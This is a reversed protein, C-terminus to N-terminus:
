FGEAGYPKGKTEFLARGESIRDQDTTQNLYEVAAIHGGKMFYCRM